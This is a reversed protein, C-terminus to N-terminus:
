AESLLAYNAEGRTRTKKAVIAGAMAVAALGGFVLFTWTSLTEPQSAALQAPSRVSMARQVAESSMARTMIERRAETSLETYLQVQESWSRNQFMSNQEFMAETLSEDSRIWSVGSGPYFQGSRSLIKNWTYGGRIVSLDCGNESACVSEADYPDGNTFSHIDGYPSSFDGLVGGWVDATGGGHPTKVYSVRGSQPEYRGSKNLKKLWTQGSGFVVLTCKEMTNCAHIGRAVDMGGWSTIDGLPSGFDGDKVVYGAAHSAAYAPVMLMSTVLAVVLLTM